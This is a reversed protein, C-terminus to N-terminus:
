LLIIFAWSLEVILTKVCACHPWLNLGQSACKFCFHFPSSTTIHCLTMIHCLMVRCTALTDRWFISLKVSIFYLNNGGQLGKRNVKKEKCYSIANWWYTWNLTVYWYANMYRQLTILCLKKLLFNNAHDLNAWVLKRKLIKSFISASTFTNIPLYPAEENLNEYVIRLKVSGNMESKIILCYSKYLEM